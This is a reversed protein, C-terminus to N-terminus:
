RTCELLGLFGLGMQDIIGIAKKYINLASRYNKSKLELEGKAEYIQVKYVENSKTTKILELARDIHVNAHQFENLDIYEKSMNVLISITTEINGNLESLKLARNYYELSQQYNELTYYINALNNYYDPLLDIYNLSDAIREGLIYSNLAEPTIIRFM